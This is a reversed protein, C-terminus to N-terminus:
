NIANGYADYWEGVSDIYFDTDKLTEKVQYILENIDVFVSNQDVYNVYNNLCYLAAIGDLEDFNICEYDIEIQLIGDSIYIAEVDCDNYMQPVDDRGDYVGVIVDDDHINHVHVRTDDTLTKFIDYLKM